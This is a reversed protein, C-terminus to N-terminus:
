HSTVKWRQGSDLSGREGSHRSSGSVGGFWTGSIYLKIGIKEALGILLNSMSSSVTVLAIDKLEKSGLFREVLLEL